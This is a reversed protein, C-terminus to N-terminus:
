PNSGEQAPPNFPTPFNMWAIIGIARKDLWNGDLSWKGGDEFIVFHAMLVMPKPFVPHLLTVLYCGGVKPLNEPTIDQWTNKQAEALDRKLNEVDDLLFGQDRNQDSWGSDAEVMETIYKRMAARTESTTKLEAM